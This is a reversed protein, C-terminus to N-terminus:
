PLFATPKDKMREVLFWKAWRGYFDDATSSALLRTLSLCREAPVQELTGDDCLRRGALAEALDPLWAPAPPTTQLVPWIRVTGTEAASLAWKGDRSLHTRKLSPGNKIWGSLPLGSTADWVRANGADDGTLILRGDASFEAYWVSGPHQMLEFLRQGTMADWVFGRRSGDGTVIRKGDPSFAATLVQQDHRFERVLGGTRADRLAATRDRSATLILREDPSFVASWVLDKHRTSRELRVGDPLSWFELEGSFTPVVLLRADQRFLACVGSSNNTMTPGVPRGTETEFVNVTQLYSMLCFWRGDASFATYQSQATHIPEILLAGTQTDWVRSEGTSTCAVVRRGDPSIDLHSIFGTLPLRHRLAGTATDRIEVADIGAMAFWSSDPSFKADWLYQGNTFTRPEATAMRVDWLRAAGDASASALVHGNPACSLSKILGDHECNLPELQTERASLDVRAVNGEFDGIFLRQGSSSFELASVRGPAWFTLSPFSSAPLGDPGLNWLLLESAGASGSWRNAVVRQSQSDLATGVWGSVGPLDSSTADWIRDGSAASWVSISHPGIGFVYQNKASIVQAQGISTGSMLGQGIPTPQGTPRIDTADWLQLGEKGNLLAFRGDPTTAIPGPSRREFSTTM